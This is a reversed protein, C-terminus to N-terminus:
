AGYESALFARTDDGSIDRAVFAEGIRHALIFTLKGQRVKKDQAMLKMLTEIDPKDGPIDAIRTPLGVAAFHAAVRTPADAESCVGLAESFRFAQCMGIAIAEGHLLRDSYGCFAEYAHGFTHGLNLLAREGQETEDRSVVGAKARVSTEVARTLPEPKLALVDRHNQDLWSFFPADGLLGYKAVEAYGARLEREPLTQLTDTDALVLGPQHFAGILNKGQPTDIGTKGGVSSDVQALLSTPIQVFRVGRRLISAAFGALDGIVGGGLAVVLDGRELGLELLRESLPELIRFSKTKEGPPLIISGVHRGDAKLAAELTALHFSAVNEDTVIACRASGLREGILAAARGLLGPGILVDYARDGLPVRVTRVDLTAAPANM